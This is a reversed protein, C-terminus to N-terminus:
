VFFLMMQFRSCTRPKESVFRIRHFTIFSPKTGKQRDWTLICKRCESTRANAEAALVQSQSRLSHVLHFPWEQGVSQLAELQTHGAHLQHQGARGWTPTHLPSCLRLGPPPIPCSLPSHDLAHEGGWPCRANAPAPRNNKCTPTPRVLKM